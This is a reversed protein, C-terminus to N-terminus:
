DSEMYRYFVFRLSVLGVAVFVGITDAVIDYVDAGRSFFIQLVETFVAFTVATVIVLGKDRSIEQLLCTLVFFLIFHGAMEFLSVNSPSYLRLFNGWDPTPTFSFSIDFTELLVRVDSTCTCIFIFGIWLVLLFIM